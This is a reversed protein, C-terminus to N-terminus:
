ANTSWPRTNLGFWTDYTRLSRGFHTSHVERNWGRNYVDWAEQHPHGFPNDVGASILVMKPAVLSVTKANAADRAGHHPAAMVDAELKDGFIRNIVAWRENETDGTILYRFGSDSDKPVVKAVLSCNNSSTMDEPHLSFVEVRWERTLDGFSRNEIQDLRVSWRALPKASRKRQREAESVIGFVESATETDQFYRPYMLWDPRYMRLVWAVGAPHAHDADFGTLM